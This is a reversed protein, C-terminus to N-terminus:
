EMEYCDKVAIHLVLDRRSRQRTRVGFAKQDGALLKHRDDSMYKSYESFLIHTTQHINMILTLQDPHIRM